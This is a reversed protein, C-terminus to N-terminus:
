EVQRAASPVFLGFTIALLSTGLHLWIDAGHLPALGFMIEMGPVLGMLFLVTFLIAISV